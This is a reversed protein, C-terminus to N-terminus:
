RYGLLIRLGEEFSSSLPNKSVSSFRELWQSKLKDKLFRRGVLSSRVVESNEYTFNFEAPFVGDGAIKKHGSFNWATVQEGERWELRSLGLSAKDFFVARRSNGEETGVAVVAPGAPTRSFYVQPHLLYNEKLDWGAPDGKPTFTSKFQSFQDRKLFREQILQERFSDGNTSLWFKAWVSSRSSIKKDGSFLYVGKSWNGAVEGYASSKFIVYTRGGIESIQEEITLAEGSKLVVQHRFVTESPLPKRGEFDAKIIATLPPVFAFLSRSYFTWFIFFILIVALEFRKKM